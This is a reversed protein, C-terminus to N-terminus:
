ASGGFEVVHGEEGPPANELEYPSDVRRCDIEATHVTPAHPRGTTVRTPTREPCGPLAPGRAADRQRRCSGRIPLPRVRDVVGSRNEMADARSGEGDSLGGVPEGGAM